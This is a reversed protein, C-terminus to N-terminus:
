KDDYYVINATPDPLRKNSQLYTDISKGLTDIDAIRRSNYSSLKYHNMSTYGAIALVAIISISVLLEM